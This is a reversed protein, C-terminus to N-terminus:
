YFPQNRTFKMVMDYCWQTQDACIMHGANRVLIETLNGAQKVYGALYQDVNWIHRQAKKYEDNGNFQLNQLSNIVLPYAFIIDLQGNYILVRYNNLLDSLLPAVSQMVDNELNEQVTNDLHLTANGVHLAARVDDRQMYKMAYKLELNNENIYLYNYVNTFDTINKFLTSNNQLNGNILDNYIRYAQTYNQNKLANLIDQEYQQFITIQNFDILGIQYLYQSYQIQNIPDIFGNQIALGKLNISPNNANKEHIIHSLTVITKAAYSEGFLFFDNRKLEPFM